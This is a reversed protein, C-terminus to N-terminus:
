QKRMGDFVTTKFKKNEQEIVDFLSMDLNLEKVLSAIAATDKPLCVGGYGRFNKNVDLYMDTTTRRLIFADKVKNYDANLSNCIEYFENAFIIRLANFVNSYYKLLEAETPSLMVIKDPYKGHCEKIINFTEFSHTGVALLDHNEIFDSVACRERLFEPVFCLKLDVYNDILRQTTSPKVTSKIAVIGQYNNQHLQLIVDEVISVDCSGDETSPTPVCIYCVDTDIIDTIKTNLKLDHVIVTHDLKKFGYECASGVVGQGIIGIIM